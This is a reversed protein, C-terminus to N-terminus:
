EQKDVEKKLLNSMNLALMKTDIENGLKLVQEEYNSIALVDQNMNILAERPGDLGLAQRNLRQDFHLKEGEEFQERTFKPLSKFHKYLNNLEIVCDNVLKSQWFKM